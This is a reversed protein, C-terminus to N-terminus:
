KVNHGHLIMWPEAKKKFLEYIINIIFNVKEQESRNVTDVNYSLQLNNTPNINISTNSITSLSKFVCRKEKKYYILYFYDEHLIKQKTQDEDQITKLRLAMQTWGMKKGFLMRSFMYAGGANFPSKKGIMKINIHYVKDIVVGFRNKIQIDIDGYARPHKKPLIIFQENDEGFTEKLHATVYKESNKSTDRGDIDNTLTIDANTLSESFLDGIKTISYSPKIRVIHCIHVKSICTNSSITTIDTKIKTRLPTLIISLKNINRTNERKKKREIVRNYLKLVTDDSARAIHHHKEPKLNSYLYERRKKREQVEVYGESWENEGYMPDEVGMPQFLCLNLPMKTTKQRKTCMTGVTEQEEEEEEQLSRKM